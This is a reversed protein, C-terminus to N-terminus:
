HDTWQLWYATSGKPSSGTAWLLTALIPCAAALAVAFVTHGQFLFKM